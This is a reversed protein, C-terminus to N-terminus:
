WLLRVKEPLKTKLSAVEEIPIKLYTSWFYASKRTLGRRKKVVEIIEEDSYTKLMWKVDDMNGYDMIRLVIYSRHLKLDVTEKDVDWFLRKVREPILDM